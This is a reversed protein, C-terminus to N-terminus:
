FVDIRKCRINIRCDINVIYPAQGIMFAHCLCQISNHGRSRSQAMHISLSPLKRQGPIGNLIQRRM